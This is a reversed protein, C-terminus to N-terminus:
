TPRRSKDGLCLTKFAEITRSVHQALRHLAPIVLDGALATDKAFILHFVSPIETGIPPSLNNPVGVLWHGDAVASTWSPIQPHNLGILPTTVASIIAIPGKHKDHIDLDHLARLDDNGGRYPKLTRLLAVAEPSARRLNKEKIAKELEAARPAFPFYVGTPNGGNHSVVDCAMLDLASRLNHIADGIVSPLHDPMQERVRVRWVRFEIAAADPLAEVIVKYPRRSLFSAADSGAESIHHRARAVKRAPEAFLETM